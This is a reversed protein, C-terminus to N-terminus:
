DTNVIQGITDRLFKLEDIDDTKSDYLCADGGVYDLDPEYDSDDEDDDLGFQEMEDANLKKGTILKPGVKAYM